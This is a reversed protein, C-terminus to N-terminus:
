TRGNVGDATGVATLVRMEEQSTSILLEQLLVDGADRGLEEEIAAMAKQLNQLSQQVRQRSEPPLRDLKGPLARLLAQRQQLYGPDSGLATRILTVDAPGALQQDGSRMHMGAWLGVMAIVVSAALSTPVFWTRRKLRPEIGLWLDRPPQMEQPMDRLTKVKM